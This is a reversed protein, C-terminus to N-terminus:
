RRKVWLAIMSLSAILRYVMSKMRTLERKERVSKRIEAFLSFKARPATNPRGHM